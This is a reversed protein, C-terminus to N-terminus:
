RTLMKGMEELAVAGEKEEGGEEEEEAAMMRLAYFVTSTSSASIRLLWHGLVHCVLM